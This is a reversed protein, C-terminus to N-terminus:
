GVGTGDFYRQLSRLRRQQLDYLTFTADGKDGRIGFRRHTVVIYLGKPEGIRAFRAAAVDWDLSNKNVGQPFVDTDPDWKKLEGLAEMGMEGAHETVLSKLGEPTRAMMDSLDDLFKTYVPHGSM